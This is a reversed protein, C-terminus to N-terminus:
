RHLPTELVVRRSVEERPTASLERVARGLTDVRPLQLTPVGACWFPGGDGPWTWGDPSRDDPVFPRLVAPEAGARVLARRACDLVARHGTAFCPGAVSVAATLRPVLDDRHEALFAPVGWVEETALRGTTLLVLVGATLDARALEAVAALVSDNDALADPGDTASQLAVLDPTAGPVLGVLNRTTVVDIDAELVVTVDEGERLGHDPGVFVAPIGRHRGDRLRFTDPEDVVLVAGVAGATEFRALAHRIEEQVLSPDPVPDGDWDLVNRKTSPVRALGIVGARARSSLPGTVGDPGTRATYAVPVAPGFPRLECRRPTWRRMPISEERVRPVGAAVLRRALDDVHAVHEPSGTAVTM